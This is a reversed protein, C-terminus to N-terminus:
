TCIWLTETYNFKVLVTLCQTNLFASPVFAIISNSDISRGPQHKLSASFLYAKQGYHISIVVSFSIYISSHEQHEAKPRPNAQNVCFTDESEGSRVKHLNNLCAPIVIEAGSSIAYMFPKMSLSFSISLAFDVAFRRPGCRLDTSFSPVTHCSKRIVPTAPNIPAFWIKVM